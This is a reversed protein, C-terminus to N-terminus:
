AVGRLTQGGPIFQKEWRRGGNISRLIIGNQGVAWGVLSDSHAFTVDYLNEGAFVSDSRTWSLTGDLLRKSTLITGGNGAVCGDDDTWFWVANLTFNSPTQRTWTIGADTTSLILGGSGVAWGNQGDPRFHVGYLNEIANSTQAVWGTDPFVAILSTDSMSGAAAIVLTTGEARGTVRGAINVTAVAPNTSTWDFPVAVVTSSLDYAVATLVHVQGVQVTDTAPTVDVKSLPPIVVPKMNKSCGVALVALAMALVLPLARVAPNMPPPTKMHRWQAHLDLAM